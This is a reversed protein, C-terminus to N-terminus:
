KAGKEPQTPIFKDLWDLFETATLFGTIRHQSYEKGQENFFIITPLGLVALKKTFQTNEASNSTMDIRLLLMKSLQAEVKPDTFTLHEFEKCAVCWDAYLDLMVKRDKNEALLQQLQEYSKVNVFHLNSEVSKQPALSFGDMTWQWLPSGAVLAAVLPLMKYGISFRSHNNGIVISLWAFFSVGLLSWLRISWIDPLLRSLLFVPVALMVFGFAVKVKLLWPGSKPLIRNGFLTVLVLPIGMGIALLYLAVGGFLLDGTQAVYLLAGSLPASICPSCVLGGVVGMIFVGLYSGGKQSQSVQNLRNQLNAPLQLDYLGFMALALLVFIISLVILVIPSQLAIQLPLGITAVLLGLATYALAMGQIYIVSLLVARAMNPRQNQGIVVASLLPLMPLVCPTFALGLGLILFWILTGKNHSLNGVQSYSNVSNDMTPSSITNSPVDLLADVPFTQTEPPYCFGETCGQYEVTILTQLTHQLLPIRLNLQNRYIKTEGFYPDNHPEALPFNFEGRKGDEIVVNISKQYLYYNPAIDWHFNIDQGHRTVELNFAQAVPLYKTKSSSQFPSNAWSVLSFLLLSFCLLFSYRIRM